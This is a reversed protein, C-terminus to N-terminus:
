NHRHVRGRLPDRHNQAVDRVDLTRERMYADKMGEYKAIIQEATIRVASSATWGNKMIEDEIASSFAPDNLLSEYMDFIDGTERVAGGEFRVLVSDLEMQVQLIVQRFLELQMEPDDAKKLSVQSLEIHPRWVWARAMAVGDSVPAGRFVGSRSGPTLETKMEAQIIEAALQAALTVAFSEEEDNFKRAEKQQIVLVGLVKRQHM